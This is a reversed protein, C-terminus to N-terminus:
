LWGNMWDPMWSIDKREDAWRTEKGRKVLAGAPLPPRPRLPATSLRTPLVLKHVLRDRWGDVCVHISSVLFRETQAVSKSNYVLKNAM